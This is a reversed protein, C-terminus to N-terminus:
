ETSAPRASASDAPAGEVVTGARFMALLVGALVIAAAIRYAAAQSTVFAAVVAERTAPDRVTELVEVGGFPTLAASVITEGLATGFALGLALITSRVGGVIGLKDAPVSGFAVSNNPAQYLGAGIGLLLLPIAILLFPPSDGLFSFTVLALFVVSLGGFVLWRAGFKDSLSGSVPGVIALAVSLPLLQLGARVPSDQLGLQLFLPLLFTNVGLAVSVVMMIAAAITFPAITFLRVDLMPWRTRVEYVIFLALALVGFAIMPLRIPAVPIAGISNEMALLLTLVAVAALLAGVVDFKEGPRPPTSVREERLVIAAAIAGMVGIPVNIAFVSPPGFYQVLIGGLTPSMATAVAIVTGGIGLAKGREQQPFVAVIIAAYTALIATAGVAQVVRWLVLLWITPALACLASGLTFVVIGFLFVRKRGLLDALRGAPLLAIATVIRYGLAIWEAADLGIGLDRMFGPLAVNVVSADVVAMFLGVQVVGLAWWRFGTGQTLRDLAALLGGM